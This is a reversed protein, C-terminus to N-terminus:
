IRVELAINVLSGFMQHTVKLILDLMRGYALKSMVNLSRKIMRRYGLDGLIQVCLRIRESCTDELGQRVWKSITPM